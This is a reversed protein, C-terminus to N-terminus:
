QHCVEFIHKHVRNLYDDLAENNQQPLLYVLKAAILYPRRSEDGAPTKQTIIKKLYQVTQAPNDCYRPLSVNLSYWQIFQSLAVIILIVFLVLRIPKFSPQLQEVHDQELASPVAVWTNESTTNMEPSSIESKSDTM